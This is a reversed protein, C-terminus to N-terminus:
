NTEWWDDVMLEVTIESVPNPTYPSNSFWIPM